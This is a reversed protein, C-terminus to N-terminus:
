LCIAGEIKQLKEYIQLVEEPGQLYIQSTLSRYKGGQSSRVELRGQRLVEWAQDSTESTVVVKFVFDGPWQHQSKLLELFQPHSPQVSSQYVFLEQTFDEDM